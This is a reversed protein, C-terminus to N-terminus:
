GLKKALDEARPHYYRKLMQLDKHGTIAALEVLNPVKEALRSTAEHRLDHFRIDALWGAVPTKKMAKRELEYLSRARAVAREFAQSISDARVGFIRGDLRAPLSELVAIAKSSLPVVRSEGNKTDVLKLTRRRIDLNDRKAEALEGRRMGTEIALIIISALEGSKSAACIADIELQDVRRDRGTPKQPKRVQPIGSPLSIGFDLQCAKLLRNILNLEHIVSQRSVERLRADRYSALVSSTVTAVPLGGIREEINLLRSNDPKSGRLGPLIENRYRECVQAITTKESEARRVYVGRAIESEIEAAWDKADAYSSFTRFERIHKKRVQASWSVTGDRGIKKQFSAM